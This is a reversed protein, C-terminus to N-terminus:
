EDSVGGVSAYGRTFSAVHIATIGASIVGGPDSSSNSCYLRLRASKTLKVASDVSGGGSEGTAGFEHAKTTNPATDVWCLANEGIFSANVVYSGAKLTATRAIFVPDLEVGDPGTPAIPLVLTRLPTNGDVVLEGAAASATTRLQSATLGGLLGANLHKVLRSSNVKLPPKGKRGILSLPTGKNDALTTTTTASNHHGLTLSGGNAATAVGLGGTVVALVGIGAATASNGVLHRIKMPVEM